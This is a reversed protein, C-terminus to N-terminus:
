ALSYDTFTAGNINFCTNVSPIQSFSMCGPPGAFVGFPLGVNAPQNIIVSVFDLGGNLCQNHPTSSLDFGFCSICNTTPCLLLTAPFEGPVDLAHVKSSGPLPLTTNPQGQIAGLDYVPFQGGFHVPKAHIPPPTAYSRYALFGLVLAAPMFRM